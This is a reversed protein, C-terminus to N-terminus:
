SPTEPIVTAPRKGDFSDVVLTKGTRGGSPNIDVGYICNEVVWRRWYATGSELNGEIGLENLFETIFNSILNTANVLFHGSGM